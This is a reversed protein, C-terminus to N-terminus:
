GKLAAGVKGLSNVPTVSVECEAAPLRDAAIQFVCKGNAKPDDEPLYFGDPLMRKVLREGGKAVFEVKYYLARASARCSERSARRLLSSAGRRGGVAALRRSDDGRRCRGAASLRAPFACGCM